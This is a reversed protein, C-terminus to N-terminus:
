TPKDAPMRSLLAAVRRRSSASVSVAVVGVGPQGYVVLSQLPAAMVAPIVLLDEEGSVLVRAPKRGLLASRIGKIADETITAPPNKVKVTRVHYVNPPVRARRNGKSDIVQVEPVRGISGLTETVRDGVTVIFKTRKMRRAFSGKGVEEASYLWGIPRSLEQRMGEPLKRTLGM